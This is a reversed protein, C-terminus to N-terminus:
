RGLTIKDAIIQTQNKYIEQKGYISIKQNQKLPLIKNTFIIIETNNNKIQISIKNNSYKIQSIEGQINPKSNLQTLLLLILILSLSTIFLIKKPNM